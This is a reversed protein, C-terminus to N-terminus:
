EITSIGEMPPEGEVLHGIQVVPNSVSVLQQGLIHLFETVSQSLEIGVYALYMPHGKVQSLLKM